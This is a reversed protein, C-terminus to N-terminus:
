FTYGIKLHPISIKDNGYSQTSDQSPYDEYVLRIFVASSTRIRYDAGLALYYGFLQPRLMGYKVVVGGLHTYAVGAEATPAIKHKPYTYKVGLRFSSALAKYSTLKGYENTYPRIEDTVDDKHGTGIYRVITDPVNGKFQSLSVDFQISFSKSWRPNMLNIQAGLVPSINSGTQTFHKYGGYYFFSSVSYFVYNSLQLGTYVSFKAKVGTDNPHENQFVICSEGTTCAEKHYDKVVEIMSKQDFKLKDAEQAIPPYDRFLHRIQGMYRTDEYVIGNEIKEPKQSVVEMKGDENEFFYYDVDDTYYYLNMLGKVLFELFVKRSTGNLQIERSVYYKGVDTFRYGAVDGPLYIQTASKLDPKFECQKQNNKDTRLNIWGVLTDQQNTIVYGPVYNGQAYLMSSLCLTILILGIKSKKM